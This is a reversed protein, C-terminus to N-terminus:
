ILLTVIYLRSTGRKRNPVLRNNLLEQFNFNVCIFINTSNFTICGCCTVIKGTVNLWLLKTVFGTPINGLSSFM